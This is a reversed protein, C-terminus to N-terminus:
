PLSLLVKLGSSNCDYVITAWEVLIRPVFYQNQVSAAFLKFWCAVSENGFYLPPLPTLTAPKREATPHEHHQHIHQSHEASTQSWRIADMANEFNVSRTRSLQMAQPGHLRKSWIKFLLWSDRWQLSVIQELKLVCIFQQALLTM